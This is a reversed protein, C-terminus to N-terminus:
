QFAKYLGVAGLGAGGIQQLPSPGPQTGVTSSSGTPSVPQGNLVNTMGGVQNRTFNQEEMFNNYNLDNEAQQEATIAGGVGELLQANQIQGQRQLQGVDTLGGAFQAGTQLAALGQGAGFQSEGANGSQARGMEGAQAQQTGFQAGRDANFQSQANNFANQSGEAQIRGLQTMLDQEAMGQVVGQRSGGFAGAAVASADRGGQLRQFDQFAQAKNVDTVNQQYPSMYSQAEAGNFQRAPDFGYESFGSPDYQGLQGTTELGSTLFQQAEEMGGIPNGAIDRAMDRAGMTDTGPGAIRDGGYGQYETGYAAEAQAINREFYPAAWEPLKNETQSTTEYTSNKM